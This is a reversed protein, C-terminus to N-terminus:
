GGPGGDRGPPLVRLVVLLWPVAFLVSGLVDTPFHAGRCLRAVAVVAVLVVAAVLVLWRWWARTAALVLAAIGGYLCIAAATHGSPFSSTPPLEADLHEVPPRPRDVLATSTLFIALEGALAAGLVLAPRWRRATGAAAAAALVGVGVVVWTNGLEDASDSAADLAPTRREAFWEDAGADVQELGTGTAARTVLAGAGVTLGLLLVAALLLRLVPGGVARAPSGTAM